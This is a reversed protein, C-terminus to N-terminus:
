IIVMTSEYEEHSHDIDDPFYCIKLELIISSINKNEHFDIQHTNPLHTSRHM